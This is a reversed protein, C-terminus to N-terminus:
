PIVIINELIHTLFIWYIYKTIRVLTGGYELGVPFRTLANFSLDLKVIKMPGTLFFTSLENHSINVTEWLKVKNYFANPIEHRLCTLKYNAGMLIDVQYMKFNFKVDVPKKSVMMEYLSYIFTGPIRHREPLTIGGLVLLGAIDADKTLVM